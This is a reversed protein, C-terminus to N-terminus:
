KIQLTSPSVWPSMLDRSIIIDYRLTTGEYINIKWQIVKSENFEPLCFHVHAVEAISILGSATQWITPKDAKIRLHRALEKSILTESAGSDFLVNATHIQPM